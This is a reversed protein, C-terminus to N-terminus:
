AITEKAAAKKTLPNMLYTRNDRQAFGPADSSRAPTKTNGALPHTANRGNHIGFPEVGIFADLQSNPTGCIDFRHKAM